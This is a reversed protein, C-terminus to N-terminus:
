CGLAVRDRCSPCEGCVPEIGVQCSYTLDIPLNASTFYDFVEQKHWDLFPAIASLRGDTHEALLRAMGNIFAPSCDYYPTGAHIGIAVLGAHCRGLFTASFLLFANRGLLEGSGFAPGGLIRHTSLAIGLHRALSTAARLELSAAAQGFDVFVGRVAYGRQKLLHACAASDIGGSILVAAEM